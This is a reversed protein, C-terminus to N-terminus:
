GSEYFTYSIAFHFFNEKLCTCVRYRYKLKSHVCMDSDDSSTLKKKKNKCGTLM